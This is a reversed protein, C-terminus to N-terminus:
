GLRVLTDGVAQPLSDPPTADNLGILEVNQPVTQLKNKSLLYKPFKSNSFFDTSGCQAFAIMLLAWSACILFLKALLLCKKKDLM